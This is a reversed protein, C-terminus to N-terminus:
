KGKGLPPTKVPPSPEWGDERRKAKEPTYGDDEKAM